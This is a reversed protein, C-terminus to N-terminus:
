LELDALAVRRQSDQLEGEAALTLMRLNLHLLHNGEPAAAWVASPLHMIEQGGAVVVQLTYIQLYETGLM